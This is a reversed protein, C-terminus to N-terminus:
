KERTIYVNSITTQGDLSLEIRTKGKKLEIKTYKEVQKYGEGNINIYCDKVISGDKFGAIILETLKEKTEENKSTMLSLILYAKEDTGIRREYPSKEFLKTEQTFITPPAFENIYKLELADTDKIYTVYSNSKKNLITNDIQLSYSDLYKKIKNKYDKQSSKGLYSIDRFNNTLVEIASLKTNDKMFYGQDICDIAVWKSYEQSWFEVIYYKSKAKFQANGSRYIGVRSNIGISNLMDRTIIALDRNSVKKRDGKEVLIDYASNLNKSEIDDYEVIKNAIKTINIAKELESKENKIAEKLHYTDELFKIKDNSLDEYFFAINNENYYNDWEVVKIGKYTMQNVIALVVGGVIIILGLIIKFINSKMTSM